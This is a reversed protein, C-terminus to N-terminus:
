WSAPTSSSDAQRANPMSRRHVLLLALLTAALLFILPWGWGEKNGVTAIGFSLLLQCFSLLLEILSRVLLFALYLSIIASLTIWVQSFFGNMWGYFPIHILAFGRWGRPFFDFCLHVALALSFGICLLRWAVPKAKHTRVLGYFLLSLLFGHTLISRHVLLSTGDFARDIDPFRLGLTLGLLLWPVEFLYSQFSGKRM